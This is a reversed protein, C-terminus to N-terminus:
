KINRTNIFSSLPIEDLLQYQTGGGNGWGDVKEAIGTRIKTNVPVNVDVVKDPLNPLAFKDKIQSPTLGKIDAERMVWGGNKNTVGETFVRVFKEEQTTVFEIVETGAKYPAKGGAKVFIANIEDASKIALGKFRQIGSKLFKVALGEVPLLGIIEWGIDAVTIEEGSIIKKALDMGPILASGGHDMNWNFQKQQESGFTGGQTITASTGQKKLVAKFAENKAKIIDEDMTVHNFTTTATADVATTTGTSTKAVGKMSTESEAGELDISNIVRNEAFAYTSNWPYEPALPDVSLFRGLRTDHIRYEFAYATGETGYLENDKEQNNFGYRYSNDDTCLTQTVTGTYYVQIDDAYYTVTTGTATQNQVHLYYEWGSQATFTFTLEVYGASASKLQGTVQQYNAYNNPDRRRISINTQHTNKIKVKVTYSTG